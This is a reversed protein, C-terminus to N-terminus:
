GQTDEITSITDALKKAVAALTAGHVSINGIVGGHAILNLTHQGNEIQHTVIYPSKEDPLVLFGSDYLMDRAELSLASGGIPLRMGHNRLASRLTAFVKLALPVYLESTESVLKLKLTQLFLRLLEDKEPRTQNLARAILSDAKARSGHLAESAARYSLYFPDSGSRSDSSEEIAIRRTLIPRPIANLIEGLTPYELLSDTHRVTLDELGRLEESLIQRARRSLWWQYIANEARSYLNAASESLSESATLRLRNNKAQFAQALSVRAGADLDEQDTGIKGFWQRGALADSLLTIARDVQGRHLAIRGRALQVLSRHEEGNRLPFQAVCSEFADITKSAAQLNLQDIYLLTLNLSPLVHECGDPLSTAKIWSSEAQTEAFMEKFVEGSNNLPTAPQGSKGLSLEYATAKKLVDLSSQYEGKMSLLIGLMNLTRGPESGLLTGVRAVKIAEDIRGLKMLVWARTGPYWSSLYGYSTFLDLTKLSEEYEDLNLRVQALLYLINAHQQQHELSQYPAPGYRETFLREAQKTYKLALRFHGVDGMYYGALLIHAEINKPEKELVRLLKTRADLPREDQLLMRADFLLDEASKNIDDGSESSLLESFSRTFPDQPDLQPNEGVTYKPFVLIGGLLATSAILSLSRSM